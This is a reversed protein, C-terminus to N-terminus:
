VYHKVLKPIEREFTYQKIKEKLMKTDFKVQGQFIKDIHNALSKIDGWKYLLGFKGNELIYRSSPIDSSIINCERAIAKLMAQSLGEFVSPVVFIRAKDMLEILQDEPVTGFYRVYANMGNEDIIKEIDSIFKHEPGVLWIRINPYKEKLRAGALILHHPSKHPHIRGNFLVTFNERKAKQPQAFYRQEIASVSDIVRRQDIPIKKVFERSLPIGRCFIKDCKSMMRIYLFDLLKLILSTVFNYNAEKESAGYTTVFVKAKSKKAAFFAIPFALQSHLFLQIIDFKGAILEKYLSPWIKFRQSLNLLVPLRKYTVGEVTVNEFRKDKLCDITFVTVKHGEAILTQALKQVFREVGGQVIQAQPAIFSIKSM